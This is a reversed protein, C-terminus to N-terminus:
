LLNKETKQLRQIPSIFDSLNGVLSGAYIWTKGAHFNEKRKKAEGTSSKSRLDPPLAAVNKIFLRGKRPLPPTLTASPLTAFLFLM